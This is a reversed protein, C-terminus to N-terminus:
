AMRRNERLRYYADAVLGFQEGIGRDRPSRYSISTNEVSKASVDTTRNRRLWDEAAQRLAAMQFHEPFPDPTINIPTTTAGTDAPSTQNPLNYGAWYDVEYNPEDQSHIPEAEPVLSIGLQHNGRAYRHWTGRRYLHGAEPDDLVYDTVAAGAEDDLAESTSRLFVSVVAVIPTRSLQLITDNSGRVRETYRQFGVDGWGIFQLCLQSVDAIRLSLRKEDLDETTLSSLEDILDASKLWDLKNAPTGTVTIARYDNTM